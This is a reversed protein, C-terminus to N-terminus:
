PRPQGEETLRLKGPKAPPTVEPFIIRFGPELIQGRPNKSIESASAEARRQALLRYMAIVAEKSQLRNQCQSLFRAARAQHFQVNRKPDTLNNFLEQAAPDQSAKLSAKFATQWDGGAKNPLLRLLNGRATSFLPNTLDVALVDCVFEQDIISTKVLSAIAVSDSFAKVPALWGHDADIRSTEPFKAKAAALAAAYHDRAITIVGQALGPHVFFASPIKMQSTKQDFPSLDSALNLEVPCFLPRLQEQLSLARQAQQFKESGYLKSVGAKVSKSLEGADVLGQLIRSLASDPKWKGLPLPRAATWWDNHPAALEKMIPGGAVHCASCRLRSGFQPKSPTPQRHLLAVDAIIDLSNGRYFWQRKQGEDSLEYFNYLQKVPDWAILEIMLSSPSQDAFLTNAGKTGTFHGFFFEGDKIDIGFPELRGSVIEFMSFSGSKANHFGRNDVFTTKIKAGAALLRSRLEFVNRPCPDSALLLKALPDNNDLVPKGNSDRIVCAAPTSSVTHLNSAVGYRLGALASNPPFSKQSQNGDAQAFPMTALAMLGSVVVVIAALSQWYNKSARM